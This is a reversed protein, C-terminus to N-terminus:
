FSNDILALAAATPRLREARFGVVDDHGNLVNTSFLPRVGCKSNQTQFLAKATRWLQFSGECNEVKGFPCHQLNQSLLPFNPITDFPGQPRNANVVTAQATEDGGRQSLETLIVSLVTLVSGNRIDFALNTREVGRGRTKKTKGRTGERTKKDEAHRPLVVCINLFLPTSSVGTTSTENGRRGYTNQGTGGNDYRKLLGFELSRTHQARYRSGLTSLLSEDCRM